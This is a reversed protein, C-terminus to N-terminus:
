KWSTCNQTSWKTAAALFTPTTSYHAYRRTTVTTHMYICPRTYHAHSHM